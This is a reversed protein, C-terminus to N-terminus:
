KVCEYGYKMAIDIVKADSMILEQGTMSLKRNRIYENATYGTIMSFMRHFHYNSIYLQKAVDEYNIPELIHEEIYNSKTFEAFM